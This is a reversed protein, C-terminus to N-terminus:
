VWTWTNNVVAKVESPLSVDTPKSFGSMVSVLEDVRASNLKKGAGSYFEEIKNSANGYWNKITIDDQAGVVSVKLDDGSRSFWLHEENVDFEVADNGGADTIEDRGFYGSARYIDDGLGAQLTDDGQGGNVIDEADGTLRVTDAGNGASIIRSFNMTSEFLNNQANGTGYQLYAGDFYLDEVNQSIRYSSATSIVKDRGGGGYEIIIDERRDVQYLDNGKGGVMGDIGTGGDIDDDYESGYLIDDGGKGQMIFVNDIRNYPNIHMENELDDGFVWAFNGYFNIVEVNAPVFVPDYYPRDTTLRVNATDYGANVDEKIYSSLTRGMSTGSFEYTDNDAGGYLTDVGAGSQRTTRLTDNGGLGYISDAAEVTGSLDNALDDGYIVAM